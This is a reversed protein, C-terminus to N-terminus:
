QQGAALEEVLASTGKRIAILPNTLARIGRVVRWAEVLNARPQLALQGRYTQNADPLKESSARILLTLKLMVM